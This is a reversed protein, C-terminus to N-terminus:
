IVGRNKSMWSAQGVTGGKWDIIDQGMLRHALPDEAIAGPM